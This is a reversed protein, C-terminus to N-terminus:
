RILLNGFEKHGVCFFRLCSVHYLHFKNFTLSPPMTPGPPLQFYLYPRERKWTSKFGMSVIPLTSGPSEWGYDM